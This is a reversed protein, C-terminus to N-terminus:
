KGMFYSVAAAIVGSGTLSSFETWYSKAQKQQEIHAEIRALAEPMHELKSLRSDISDLRAEHEGLDRQVGNGETM